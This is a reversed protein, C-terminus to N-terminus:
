KMEKEIIVIKEGNEFEYTKSISDFKHSLGTAARGKVWGNVFSIANMLCPFAQKEISGNEWTIHVCAATNGSSLRQVMKAYKGCKVFNLEDGFQDWGDLTVGRLFAKAHGVTPFDYFEPINGKEGVIVVYSKRIKDM